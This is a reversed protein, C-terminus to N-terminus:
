ARISQAIRRILALVVRRKKVKAVLSQVVRYSLRQREADLEQRVADRERRVRDLERRTEDLARRADVARAREEASQAALRQREVAIRQAETAIRGQLAEVRKESELLRRELTEEYAFRVELERRQADFELEQIRERDELEVPEANMTKHAEITM